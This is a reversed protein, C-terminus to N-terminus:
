KTLTVNTLFEESSQIVDYTTNDLFGIHVSVPLDFAEQVHRALQFTIAHVMYTGFHPKGNVQTGLVMRVHNPKKLEIYYGLLDIVRNVDAGLVTNPSILM